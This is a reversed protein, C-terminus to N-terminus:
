KRQRQLDPQEHHLWGPHRLANRESRDAAVSNPSGFTITVVLVDSACPQFSRLCSTTSTGDDYEWGTAGGREVVVFNSTSTGGFRTGVEESTYMLYATSGAAHYTSSSATVTQASGVSNASPIIFSGAGVTFEEDAAVYAYAITGGGSYQVHELDGVQAIPTITM